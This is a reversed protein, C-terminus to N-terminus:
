GEIFEEGPFQMFRFLRPKPKRVLISDAHYRIKDWTFSIAELLHLYRPEIHSGGSDDSSGDLKHTEKDWFLFHDVLSM